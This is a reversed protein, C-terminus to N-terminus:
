LKKHCISRSGGSSFEQFRAHVIPAVDFLSDVVVSDGDHNKFFYNKCFFNISPRSPSLSM